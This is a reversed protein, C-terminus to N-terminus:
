LYHLTANVRDGDIELMGYSPRPQERPQTPSGPNFLRVHGREQNCPEHSHGFVVVRVEPHNAFAALARAPTSTGPGIHGHTLGIALDEFPLILIRSLTHQLSPPDMNGYVSWVPAITRLRGLVEPCILDGAHLIGDVGAFADLLADPIAVKESRLHTDSLVGLRKM